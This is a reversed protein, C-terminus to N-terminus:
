KLLELYRLSSRGLESDPKIRVVEKFAARASEINQIKLYALGM